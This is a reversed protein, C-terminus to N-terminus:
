CPNEVLGRFIKRLDKEALDKLPDLEDELVDPLDEPMRDRCGPNCEDKDRDIVLEVCRGQIQEIDLDRNNEIWRHCDDHTGAFILYCCHGKTFCVLRYGSGLDYKFLGKIRGEGHRTLTGAEIPANGSQIREMIEKAKIAALAGKKGSRQFVEIRKHIEPAIYITQLM